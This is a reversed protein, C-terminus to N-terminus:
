KIDPNFPSLSFSFRAPQINRQVHITIIEMVAM